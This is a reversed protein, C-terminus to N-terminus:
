VPFGNLRIGSSNFCLYREATIKVSDEPNWLLHPSGSVQVSAGNKLEVGVTQVSGSFDATKVIGNAQCEPVSELKFDEPRVMLIRAKKGIEDPVDLEGFPTKLSNSQWEVSLHNAEGVFSSAWLTQPHQYIEAPTGEQVLKGKQMLLMRDSFTIAEAQDHTVLVTAVGEHKLIERIDSRLQQRLQYDLNSFPEDMLILRPKPALARAVAIRQQEGGSIQHPMKAALHPLSVLELLEKVRQQKESKSGAAGYAVNDQVSLHPFLAFDQFIMGFKRREPPLLIKRGSIEQNQLFVQGRSPLELGAILRLLTSKGCGSPGLISLFEHENLNLSIDSVAEVTGYTKGLNRCEIMTMNGQVANAFNREASPESFTCSLTWCGSDDPM